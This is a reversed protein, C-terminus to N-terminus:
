APGDLAADGRRVGRRVRDEPRNWNKVRWREDEPLTLVKVKGSRVLARVLDQLSLAGRRLRMLITRQATRPYIAALPEFGDAHRVVAGGGDRCFGFMWRFWDADIAPMDVALVAVLPTEASALAAHLGALPGADVFEDRVNKIPKRDREGLVSQDARRLIVVSQAGANKLVRIQRRWMAEGDLRLSAKDRGMRRSHGGAFVAGSFLIGKEPSTKQSASKRRDAKSSSRRRVSM